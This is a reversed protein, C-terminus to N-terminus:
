GDTFMPITNFSLPEITLGDIEWANDCYNIYVLVGNSYGVVVHLGKNFVTHAIVEAGRVSRYFDNYRAYYGGIIDEWHKGYETMFYMNNLGHFRFNHFTPFFDREPKYTLNLKLGGGSEVARLLYEDFGRWAM